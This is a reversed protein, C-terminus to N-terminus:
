PKGPTPDLLLVSPVTEAFGLRLLAYGIGSLGTLLGPSPVTDPTACRPGYRDLAGLVLGARHTLRDAAGPLGRAAAAALPELTGLEGHCLSLDSLLPRDADLPSRLADPGATAPARTQTPGNGTVGALLTGSLGSCWGLDTDPGTGAPAPGLLARGAAAYAGEPPAVAAGYRCLAWGAGARGRLFGDPLAEAAALLRGAFEPASAAAQPLGSERHVALLSALGGALGTAVDAPPGAPDDTRASAALARLALPLCDGLRDDGLLTTLRALAYCLGGLGHFGGPGVARSLEPDAALARVLRPLPRVARSALELYRGVETLHGLQALFLAVGTYGDALGAGMPTVAWHRGNVLELGIWNARSRDHVARGVIEDAIGCAAALLRRPEPVSAPAPPLGPADARHTVRRARRTSLAASILWEQHHRDVEGLASIKEETVVLAPAALLDPLRVGRSSWADTGGPRHFFLPIDGDWLDAIEHEVLRRRVPDGASEAYLLSFLVDRDVADGLVDPHASEDLLTAYLRTARGVLRAPAAGFAAQPGEPALLEGRHAVLADYGARFGTLLAAEYAGPDVARGDLSPRNPSGAYPVPRRVLHMTDTGADAWDVADTPSLAAQGGGVASIDLAGHEDILLQPLLCTRHVSASLALAAPDPGATAAMPVSPHLLTEVDVLVPQDGRAVLNEYHMDAGDVAYLLALLAGQRRYFRDVEGVSRCPRHDVFELWGYGDRRVVTVTRLGLGPLRDDLWAVLRDFCVHQDLPRPKYVVTRGDAFRLLAVARGQQHTDGHGLDVGTLAGPDLGGLLEEVLAARDGALRELLEAAAATAHVCETGLLRALVPYRGFLGALPGQTGLEATFRAFRREPTTGDLRGEARARNLELVLTRAAPGVLRHGLQQEFRARVSDPDVRGVLGPLARLREALARGAARTLPALAGAFARRWADHGPAADPQPAAAPDPTRRGAGDAPAAATWAHQGAADAPSGLGPAPRLPATAVAREVFEAWVPRRARAALRAAPEAALAAVTPVDAGLAALRARFAEDQGLATVRDALRAVAPGSPAAAPAGPAALRERLHLAPAWWGPALGPTTEQTSTTITM